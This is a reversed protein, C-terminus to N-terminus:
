PREGTHIRRHTVLRSNHYFNKGYNPCRFPREDSHIWQHVLDSSTLFRKRCQNCEYPREGTH